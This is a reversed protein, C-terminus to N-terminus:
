DVAATTEAEGKRDGQRSNNGGAVHIIMLGLGQPRRLFDTHLMGILPM